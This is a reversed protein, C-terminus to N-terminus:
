LHAVARRGAQAAMPLKRCARRAVCRSQGTGIHSAANAFRALDTKPLGLAGRSRYATIAAREPGFRKHVCVILEDRAARPFDLYIDPLTETDASMFRELTLNWKLPDIHSIGILYGVLMAVSSGRGRGPPREELRTEPPTLEREVAIQRAILAIERYLLLFGAMGHREILKFEEDLRAAVPLTIAGYRRISAEGCLQHLYSARTYGAPVEADPLEYGLDDALNFECSEAIKLTNAIAQPCQRFLRQMEQPSKLRLHSNPHIHPLVEDLTMNRHAAVIACYLYYREASHYRVDNTAVAQSGTEKALAILARNRRAADQHYNRQLAIYASDSGFWNMYSRLQARAKASDSNLLSKSIAGQRGDILAILGDACNPLHTSDLRSERQDAANAITFLRSLNAYGRRSHALLIIRTEDALTLTGSTIPKIGLSNATQAFELAGCLNADTLALSQYGFDAAALLESM